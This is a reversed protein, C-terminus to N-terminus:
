RLISVEHFKFSNAPIRDKAGRLHQFPRFILFISCWSKHLHGESESVTKTNCLHLFCVSFCHSGGATQRTHVTHTNTNHQQITLSTPSHTCQVPRLPPMRQSTSCFSFSAPCPLQVSHKSLQFLVPPLFGTERLGPLKWDWMSTVKPLLSDNRFCPLHQRWMYKNKVDLTSSSKQKIMNM